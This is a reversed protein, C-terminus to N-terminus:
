TNQMVGISFVSPCVPLKPLRPTFYRGRADEQYCVPRQLTADYRYEIGMRRELRKAPDPDPDLWNWVTPEWNVVAPDALAPKGSADTFYWINSGRWHRIWEEQAEPPAPRNEVIAGHMVLRVDLPEGPKPFPWQLDTIPNDPDNYYVGPIIFWSGRQAYILADVQVDMGTVLLTPMTPSAALLYDSGEMWEFRITNTAGNGQLPSGAPLYRGSDSIDWVQQELPDNAYLGGGWQVPNAWWPTRLDLVAIDGFCLRDEVTAGVAFRFPKDNVTMRMVGYDPQGVVAAGAHRLLLRSRSNWAGATTFTFDLPEGARIRWLNESGVPETERSASAFLKTPNLCVNDRALLAVKSDYPDGLRIETTGAGDQYRVKRTAPGLLSGEIYVTGGSVITLDHRRNAATVYYQIGSGDPNWGGPRQVGGGDLMPEYQGDGDSDEFALSAPLNGKVTVSGEAYIVGNRSYPLTIREGVPQNSKNFFQGGDFRRLELYPLRTALASAANYEWDHLTIEVAGANEPHYVGDIWTLDQYLPDKPNLWEDRLADLDGGYQVSTYKDDLYLGSGWGLMQSTFASASASANATYDWLASEATLARYRHTNTVPDRRDLLPAKQARILPNNAGTQLFRLKAINTSDVLPHILASSAATLTTETANQAIRTLFPISAAADYAILEGVVEILDERKVDFNMAYTDALTTPVTPDDNIIDLRVQSGIELDSECRIPGEYIHLYHVTASSANSSDLLESDTLDNPNTNVTEIAGLDVDPALVAPETGGDINTIWLLYDTLGIPMFATLKRTLFRRPDKYGKSYQEFTAPDDKKTPDLPDLADRLRPDPPNDLTFRAEVDIKVMRQLPNAGMSNDLASNPDYKIDQKKTPGYSLTVRYFGGGFAIWGPNNLDPGAPPRADAGDPSNLLHNTFQRLGAEVIDELKVRDEARATQVLAQNLTAIFLGALGALLFMVLVAMILAQGRAAYRARRRVSPALTRMRIMSM